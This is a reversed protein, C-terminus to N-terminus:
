VTEPVVWPKRYTRKLYADAQDNDIFSETKPDFRLTTGGLRYSINATQCLLTSRHGEEIDCNPRKRSKVCDFFNDIHPGHPHRGAHQAILKGDPDWAQWGGGHRGFKMMGATGHIEIQTANTQWDPFGDTDRFDWPTKKMHPTWLALEFTMLLDDFMWSAIMTDPTEQDDKHCLKGGLSNVTQPYDKGILLRATDVQHIGDNIIDGGSYDWYWHWTYHFHNRNFPRMPAPGLWKEYDVGAPVPEDARPPVAPRNKMNFVRAMHIKGIGGSRLFQVGAKAYPASRCQAGLQVIRNYKRAAEVMKRGEWPTHSAPKEIYVDKGAQCALITSLAHWHDPTTSFFVDVQKDDLIRRFDKVAKPRKGTAEEVLKVAKAIRADEIDCVYAIELNKRRTLEEKLLFGGRIGLGMIGITLKDNASVPDASARLQSATLSAAVGATAAMFQRRNTHKPFM